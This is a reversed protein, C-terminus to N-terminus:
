MRIRSDPDDTLLLAEVSELLDDRGEGTLASFPVAQEPEIGLVEMAQLLRSKRQTNTLKDVKTLAFLTPL